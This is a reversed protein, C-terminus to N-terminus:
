RKKNFESPKFSPHYRSRVSVPPPAPTYDLNNDAKHQEQKPRSPFRRIEDKTPSYTDSNFRTRREHEARTVYIGQVEDFVYNEAIRKDHEADVSVPAPKKKAWIFKERIYDAVLLTFRKFIGDQRPKVQKKKSKVPARKFARATSSSPTKLTSRTHPAPAVLVPKQSGKSSARGTNDPIVIEEPEALAHVTFSAVDVVIDLPLDKFAFYTEVAEKKLEDRIAQEAARQERAAVTGWRDRPIHLIPDRNTEIAKALWIAKEENTAAATALELAEEYQVRISRHDIREDHGYLELFGNCINQWGKRWSDLTEPKDWERVKKGFGTSLIERTTGMIHIHPNHGNIDHIVVDAIIGQKTFHELVFAATLEINQEPTLEAPLAIKFEKALRADKRKESAEVANWLTESDVILAPPTHEPAFIQAFALDKKHATKRGCIEGTRNDFFVKRHRYAASNVSSQGEGRSINEMKFSYIAM